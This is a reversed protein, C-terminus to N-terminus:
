NRVPPPGVTVPFVEPETARWRRSSGALLLRVFVTTLPTRSSSTLSQRQPRSRSAAPARRLAAGRAPDGEPRNAGSQGLSRVHAVVQWVQDGSFFVGPMATGSIGDTINNFLDADTCGHFFVGIRVTPGRGGEGALGHCEACHSRFIKAGAAIDAPTTHPNTIGNSQGFAATAILLTLVYRM